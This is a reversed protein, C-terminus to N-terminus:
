DLLPQVREREAAALRRRLSIEAFNEDLCLAGPVIRGIREAAVPTLIEVTAADPQGTLLGLGEVGGHRDKLGVLLGAPCPADSRVPQLKQRSLVLAAAQTFYRRFAERRIARREGDTKRRAEPSQMLRLVPRNGHDSLVAELDAGGGIGILLDPRLAEIKAAKLRRGPGALLGSTNVVLLDADAESALRRIGDILRRWEPLPSTTGVFALRLGSSDLLTVCAPPGVTKQGVDADLLAASRGNRMAEALLFRCLTSKGMDVAGLVLVSRTDERLIREAAEAWDPPVHLPASPGPALDPSDAPHRTM